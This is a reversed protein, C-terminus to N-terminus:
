KCTLGHIHVFIYIKICCIFNLSKCMHKIHLTLQYTSLEFVIRLLTKQCERVDKM